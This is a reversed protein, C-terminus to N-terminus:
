RNCFSILLSYSRDVFQLILGYLDAHQMLQNAIYHHMQLPNQGFVIQEGNMVQFPSQPHKLLSVPLLSLTQCVM